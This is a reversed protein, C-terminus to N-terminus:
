RRLSVDARRFRVMSGNKEGSDLDLRELAQLVTRPVNETVDITSEAVTAHPLKAPEASTTPNEVWVSKPGPTRERTDGISEVVMTTGNSPTSSVVMRTPRSAVAAAPRGAARSLRDAAARSVNATLRAFQERIEPQVKTLRSALRQVGHGNTEAAKSVSGVFKVSALFNVDASRSILPSVTKAILDAGRNDFRLFLDMQNDVSVGNEADKSYTSRLLLVCKATVPRRIVKGVYTGEGYFVHLHPTGYVLQVSCDTGLGDSAKFSYKGTREVSAKTAGMLEWINVIVEPQRVLFVYLNPDCHISKTPMRRYMSPTSVVSWLTERMSETLQQFPIAEAAEDRAARSSTADSSQASAVSAVGGAIAAAILGIFLLRQSAVRKRRRPGSDDCGPTFAIKTM